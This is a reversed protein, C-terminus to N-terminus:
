RPRPAAATRAGTRSPVCHALDQTGLSGPSDRLERVLESSAPVPRAPWAFTPDVHRAFAPQFTERERDRVLIALGEMRLAANLLEARATTVHGPDARTGRLRSGDRALQRGGCAPRPPPGE